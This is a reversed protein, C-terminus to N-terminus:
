LEGEELDDDDALAEGTVGAALDRALVLALAAVTTHEFVLRLPLGVDLEERIRSVLQTALLSHGGMEFFDDHVGVRDVRLLDEFMSALLKELPSSPAVYRTSSTAPVDAVRLAIRDVKGSPTRPLADILTLHSPIMAEPLRSELHRRLAAVLHAERRPLLPDNASCGSQASRAECLPRPTGALWVVVDCTADSSAPLAEAECGGSRLTGLLDELNVGSRV